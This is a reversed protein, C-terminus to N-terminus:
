ASTQSDNNDRILNGLAFHTRLSSIDQKFYGTQFYGRVGRYVAVYSGRPDFILQPSTDNVDVPQLFLSGQKFRDNLALSSYKIGALM